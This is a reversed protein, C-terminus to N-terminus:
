RRSVLHQVGESPLNLLASRLFPPMLQAEELHELSVWEFASTLDFQNDFPQEPLDPPSEALYYFGIEHTFQEENEFFNELLYSLKLPGVARGMEEQIERKAASLSDEGAKIRGGPLYCWSARNERCILLKGGRILIVAARSLFRHQGLHIDVDTM